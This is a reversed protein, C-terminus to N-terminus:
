RLDTGLCLRVTVTLQVRAPSEGAAIGVCYERGLNRISM